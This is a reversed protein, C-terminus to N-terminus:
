HLPIMLLRAMIWIPAILLFQLDRFFTPRMGEFHYGVLQGTWSLFFVIISLLVLLSHRDFYACFTLMVAGVLFLIFALQRSFTSYYLIALPVVITAGNILGGYSIKFSWLVGLVSWVLFPICIMHFMQNVPHRHTQEYEKFLDQIPTM